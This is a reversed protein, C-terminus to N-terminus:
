KSLERIACLEHFFGTPTRFAAEIWGFRLPATDDLPEQSGPKLRRSRVFTGNTSGADELTWAGDRDFRLFAHLRSVSEFPLVLDNERGRGVLIADAGPSSIKRVPLALRGRAQDMLTGTAGGTHRMTRGALPVQTVVDESGPIVVVLFPSPCRKLFQAETSDAADLFDAVLALRGAPTDVPM